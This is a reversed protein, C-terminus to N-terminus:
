SDFSFFFFSGSKGAGQGAKFISDRNRGVDLSFLLDGKTVGGLEMMRAFKEPQFFDIGGKLNIMTGTSFPASSRM